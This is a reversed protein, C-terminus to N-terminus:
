VIHLWESQNHTLQDRAPSWWRVLTLSRHFGRASWLFAATLIMMCSCCHQCITIHQIWRYNSYNITLLQQDICTNPTLPSWRWGACWPRSVPYSPQFRNLSRRALILIHVAIWVYDNLQAGNGTCVSNSMHIPWRRCSNLALNDHIIQSRVSDVAAM